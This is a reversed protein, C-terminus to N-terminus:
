RRGKKPAERGNGEEVAERVGLQWYYRALMVAAEAITAKATGGAEAYAAEVILQAIINAAELGLRAGCRLRDPDAKPFIARLREARQAAVRVTSAIQIHRMEQKARLARLIQVSGSFSAMATVIASLVRSLEAILDAESRPLENRSMALLVVDDGADLLRQALTNLLAYKNPFYRYFAPPTLGSRQSVANISFADPGKDALVEGAVRLIADFTNRSRTQSPLTKTELAVRPRRGTRQRSSQSGSKAM